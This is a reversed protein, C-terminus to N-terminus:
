IHPLLFVFRVSFFRSTTQVLTLFAPVGWNFICIGRLEYAGAYRWNNKKRLGPNGGTSNKQFIKQIRQFIQIQASRKSFELFIEIKRDTKLKKRNIWFMAVEKRKPPFLAMTNNCDKLPLSGHLQLRSCTRTSSVCTVTITTNTLNHTKILNM